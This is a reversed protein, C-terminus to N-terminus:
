RTKSIGQEQPCSEKQKLLLSHFMSLYRIVEKNVITTVEEEYLEQQQQQQQRRQQQEQQLHQAMLQLERM